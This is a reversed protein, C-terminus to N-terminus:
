CTPSTIRLYEPNMADLKLLEDMLERVRPWDRQSAEYLRALRFLEDPELPQVARSEELTKLAATLKDPLTADIFSRARVDAVSERGNQRNRELWAVAAKHNAEGGRDALLLALQRRAWALSAEPAVVTPGVMKLLLPEAKAARDLRIYLSALHQLRLAENKRQELSAVFNEEAEKMRGLAEYCVGLAFPQQEPPLRRRMEDIVAEAQQPRNDHALYTALVLWADLPDYRQVKKEADWARDIATRFVAEARNAQGAAAYVQGLWILRSPDTADEPVALNALVVAREFNRVRLAIESGARAFAGRPILQQQAKRLVEDAEAFRGREALLQVLRQVAPLQREGLDFARQYGKMAEATDGAVDNLFAQLLAARGWSPRLRAVTALTARAEDLGSRDGRVAKAIRQAAEAYRWWVGDDGGELKKLRRVVDALLADNKGLLALDLLRVWDGFDGPRGDGLKQLLQRCLRDGEAVNGLRYHM